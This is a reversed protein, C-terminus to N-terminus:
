PLEAPHAELSVRSIDAALFISAHETQGVWPFNEHHAPHLFAEHVLGFHGQASGPGWQIFPLRTLPDFSRPLEENANFVPALFSWQHDHFTSWHLHDIHTDTEDASRDGDDSGSDSDYDTFVCLEISTEFHTNVPNHSSYPQIPLHEDNLGCEFCRQLFPTLPRDGRTVVATAFVRQAEHSVFDILAESAGSLCARINAETLLDAFADQPLFKKKIEHWVCTDLSKDLKTHFKRLARLHGPIQSLSPM